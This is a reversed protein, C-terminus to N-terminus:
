RRAKPRQEQAASLDCRQTARDGGAVVARMATVREDAPSAPDIQLAQAAELFQVLLEPDVYNGGIYDGIACKAARNM